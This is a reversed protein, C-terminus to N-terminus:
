SHLPFLEDHEQLSLEIWLGKKNTCFIAFHSVIPSLRYVQLAFLLVDSSVLHQGIHRYSAFSTVAPHITKILRGNQVLIIPIVGPHSLSSLVIRTKSLSQVRAFVYSIGTLNQLIM